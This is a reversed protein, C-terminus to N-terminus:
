FRPTNDSNYAPIGFYTGILGIIDHSKRFYPAMGRWRLKKPVRNYGYKHQYYFKIMSKDFYKNFNDEQRRKGHKRRLRKM